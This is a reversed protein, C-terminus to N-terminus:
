CLQLQVCVGGAVFEPECAGLCSQDNWREGVLATISNRGQHWTRAREGGAPFCTECCGVQWRRIAADFESSIFHHSSSHYVEACPAWACALCPPLAARRNRWRRGGGPARRATLRSRQRSQETASLQFCLCSFLLNGLDNQVETSTNIRLDLWLVTKAGFKSLFVCLKM